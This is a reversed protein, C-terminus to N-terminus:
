DNHYNNYNDNNNNNNNDNNNNNVAINQSPYTILCPRQPDMM